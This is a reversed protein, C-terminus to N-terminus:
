TESLSIDDEDDSLGQKECRDLDENYKWGSNELAWKWQPMIANQKACYTPSYGHAARANPDCGAELLALLKLRLRAKFMWPEPESDGGRDRSTDHASKFDDVDRVKCYSKKLDEREWSDNDYFCFSEDSAVSSDTGDSADDDAGDEEKPDDSGEPSDDYHESIGNSHSSRPGFIASEQGLSVSNGHRRSHRCIGHVPPQFELGFGILCLHLANMEYMGVAHIDAGNAIFFKLMTLSRWGPAAAMYLLPTMTDSELYIQDFGVALLEQIVETCQRETIRTACQAVQLVFLLPNTGWVSKTDFGNRLALGTMSKCRTIDMPSSSDWQAKEMTVM